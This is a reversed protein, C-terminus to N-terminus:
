KKRKDTAKSIKQQFLFSLIRGEERLVVDYNLKTPLENLNKKWHVYIILAFRNQGNIIWHNYNFPYKTMEANIGGIGESNSNIKLVIKEIYNNTLGEKLRFFFSWKRKNLENTFSNGYFCKIENFKRTEFEWKKFESLLKYEKGYNSMINTELVKNISFKTSLTYVRQCIPCKFTEKERNYWKELCPFCFKHNCSLNTPKYLLNCCIACLYDDNIKDSFELFGQLFANADFSKTNKHKQINKKPQIKKIEM